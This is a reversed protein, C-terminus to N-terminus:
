QKILSAEIDKLTQRATQFLETKKLNMEANTYAGAECQHIVEILTNVLRQEVGKQALTNTLQTKNIQTDSYPLRNHFYNWIALKLEAYFIKDNDIVLSAPRLIEEISVPSDAAAYIKKKEEARVTNRKNRILLFISTVLILTGAGILL